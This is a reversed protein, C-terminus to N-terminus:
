SLLCNWKRVRRRVQAIELRCESKTTRLNGLWIQRPQARALEINAKCQGGIAAIRLFCAKCLRDLHRLERTPCKSLCALAVYVAILISFTQCPWSLKLLLPSVQGALLAMQRRLRDKKGKGLIATPATPRISGYGNTRRPGLHDISSRAGLEMALGKLPSILKGMASKFRFIAM